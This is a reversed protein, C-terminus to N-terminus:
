KEYHTWMRIIYIEKKQENVQFIIRHQRNIRRSYLGTYEGVLKEYKPPYAFPDICMLDLLQKAIRDLKANKIKKKDKEAIKSFLLKYNSGNKTQTM